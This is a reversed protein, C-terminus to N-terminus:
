RIELASERVTLYKEKHVFARVRRREKARPSSLCLPKLARHKVLCGLLLGSEKSESGEHVVGRGDM